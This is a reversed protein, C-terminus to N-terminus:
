LFSSSRIRYQSQHLFLLSVDLVNLFIMSSSLLLLLLVLVGDLHHLLFSIIDFIICAGIIFINLRLILCELLVVLIYLDMVLIEDLFKIVIASFQVFGLFLEPNCVVFQIELAKSHLYLEIFFCNLKRHFIFQNALPFIISVIMNRLCILINVSQILQSNLISGFIIQKNVFAFIELLSFFILLLLYILEFLSFDPLVVLYLLEQILISLELYCFSVWDLGLTPLFRISSCFGRLLFDTLHRDFLDWHLLELLVFLETQVLRYLSSQSLLFSCM